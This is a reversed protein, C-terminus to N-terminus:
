SPLKLVAKALINEQIENSGGFIAPARSDLFAQCGDCHTRSSPRVSRSSSACPKRPIRETPDDRRDPRGFVPNLSIARRLYLGINSEDAFGMAGHFHVASRCVYVMTDGARAKAVLVAMERPHENGLALTEVVNVVAACAFDAEVLM